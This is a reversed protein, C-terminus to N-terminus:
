NNRRMPICEEAFEFRDPWAVANLDRSYATGVLVDDLRGFNDIRLVGFWHLGSVALFERQDGAERKIVDTRRWFSENDVGPRQLRTVSSISRETGKTARGTEATYVERFEQPPIWIGAM